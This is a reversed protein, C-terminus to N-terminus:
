LLFSILRYEACKSGVRKKPIVIFIPKFLDYPLIGSCYTLNSFKTLRKISYDYLPKFMEVYTNDGGLPNHAKSLLKAHKIESM